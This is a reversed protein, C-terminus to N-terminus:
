RLEGDRIGQHHEGYVTSHWRISDGLLQRLPGDSRVMSGIGHRWANTAHSIEYTLILTDPEAFRGFLRAQPRPATISETPRILPM